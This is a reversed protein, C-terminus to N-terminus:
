DVAETWVVPTNDQPQGAAVAANAQRRAEEATNLRVSNIRGLEATTWETETTICISLEFLGGLGTPNPINTTNERLKNYVNGLEVKTPRTLDKVLKQVDPVSNIFNEMMENITTTSSM